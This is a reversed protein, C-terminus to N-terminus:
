LSYYDELVIRDLNDLAKVVYLRGNSIEVIKKALELGKHDLSIGILSITIKNNRAIGVAKLTDSEPVDGKTPLADTLLILHKTDKKPFLSISKTISSAINTERSARIDALKKLIRIFDNTPEIYDKIESGFVILGVKNRDQIAKFALAIGSKKAIRLKDGKMSGSADLGYIISIYGEHQREYAKLDNKEISQHSRRLATQISQKLAINRYIDKNFNKYDEKDGYVSRKKSKKEGFGKPVLNDLEEACLVISSLYLGKDTIQGEKNLLGDDKM